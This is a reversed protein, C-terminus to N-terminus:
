RKEQWQQSQSELNSHLNREKRETIRQSTRGAHGFGDGGWDSNWTQMNSFHSDEAWSRVQAQYSRQLLGCRVGNTTWASEVSPEGGSDSRGDAVMPSSNEKASAAAAAVSAAELLGSQIPLTKAGIEFVRSCISFCACDPSSASWTGYEYPKEIM